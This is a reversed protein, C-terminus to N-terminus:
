RQQAQKSTTKAPRRLIRRIGHSAARAMDALEGFFIGSYTSPQLAAVAEQQTTPHLEVGAYPSNVGCEAQCAAMLDDGAMKAALVGATSGRRLAADSRGVLLQIQREHTCTTTGEDTNM